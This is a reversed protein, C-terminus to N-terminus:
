ESSYFAINLHLGKSIVGSSLGGSPFGGSPVGGSCVGGSNMRRSSLGLINRTRGASVSVVAFLVVIIKLAMISIMLM